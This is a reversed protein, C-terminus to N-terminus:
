CGSPARRAHALRRGADAALSGADVAPLLQYQVAVLSAPIATHLEITPSTRTAAERVPLVRRGHKQARHADRLDALASNKEGDRGDPPAGDRPDRARGAARERSPSCSPPM